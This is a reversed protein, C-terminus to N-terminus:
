LMSDSLSLSKNVPLVVFALRFRSQPMPQPWCSPMPLIGRVQQRHQADQPRYSIRNETKCRLDAGIVGMAPDVLHHGPM